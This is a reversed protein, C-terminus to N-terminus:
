TISGRRVLEAVYDLGALHALRDEFPVGHEIIKIRDSRRHVTVFGYTDLATLLEPFPRGLARIPGLGKLLQQYEFMARVVEVTKTKVRSQALYIAYLAVQDPVALIQM